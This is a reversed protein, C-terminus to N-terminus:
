LYYNKNKAPYGLQPNLKHFDLFTWSDQGPSHYPPLGCCLFYAEVSAHQLDGATGPDCQQIDAQTRGEGRCRM